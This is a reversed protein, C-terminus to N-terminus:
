DKIVRLALTTTEMLYGVSWVGNNYLITQTLFDVEGIGKQHSLFAFWDNDTIGISDWPGARSV